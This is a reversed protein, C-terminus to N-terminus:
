PLVLPSLEIEDLEIIPDLTPYMNPIITKVGQSYIIRHSKPKAFMGGGSANGGRHPTPNPNAQFGTTGDLFTTGFSGDASQCHLKNEDIIEFENFDDNLRGLKLDFSSTDVPQKKKTNKKKRFQRQIKVSAEELVKYFGEFDIKEGFEFLESVLGRIERLVDSTKMGDSIKELEDVRQIWSIYPYMQRISPQSLPDGMESQHKTFNICWNNM